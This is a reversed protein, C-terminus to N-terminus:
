IVVLVGTIPLKAPTGSCLSRAACDGVSAATCVCTAAAAAACPYVGSCNTHCVGSPM